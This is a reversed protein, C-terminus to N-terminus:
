CWQQTLIFEALVLDEPQTIKLNARSDNVLRVRGGALEIASAEDTIAKDLLLGKTIAQQLVAAPFCQPTHAQWLNERSVTQAIVSGEARKLTDAVPAALIAGTYDSAGRLCVSMLERLASDTVCPRAADHVLVWDALKFSPLVKLYELGKLVSNAREAGGIAVHVRPNSAIDLRKFTDDNEAVCVVVGLLQPLALLKGLTIELVTKGKLMLYQKPIHSRMRSGSGAAPVVAWFHPSPKQNSFPISLPM